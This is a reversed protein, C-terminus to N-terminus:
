TFGTPRPFGNCNFRRATGVPGPATMCCSAPYTLGVRCSACPEWFRRHAAVGDRDALAPGGAAAGGGGACRVTALGRRQRASEVARGLASSRAPRGPRRPFGAGGDGRSGSARGVVVCSVGSGSRGGESARRFFWVGPGPGVRAGWWGRGPRALGEGTGVVCRRKARVRLEGALELGTGERSSACRAWACPNVRRSCSPPFASRLTARWCRPSGEPRSPGRSVAPGIPM